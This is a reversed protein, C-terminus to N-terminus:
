FSWGLSVAGGEPTLTASVAPAEPGSTLYQYLLFGTAALTVGAGISAYLTVANGTKVDDRAEQWDNSDLVDGDLTPPQGAPTEMVTQEILDAEDEANRAMLYGAMAVGGLVVSAAGTGIGALLYGRNRGNGHDRVEGRQPPPTVLKSEGSSRPDLPDADSASDEPPQDPVPELAISVQKRTTSAIVVQKRATAFGDKTVTVGHAGFPLWIAGAVQLVEGPFPDVRIKAGAPEARVELEAFRGSALASESEELRRDVWGPLGGDKWTTKCRRLYYNASAWLSLKVYALGINCAHIPRSVLADAERFKEIAEEFKGAAGLDAGQDFLQNAREEDDMAQARPRSVPVSVMLSAILPATALASARM